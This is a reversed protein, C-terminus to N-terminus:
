RNLLLLKKKYEKYEKKINRYKDYYINGGNHQNILSINKKIWIDESVFNINSKENINFNDYFFCNSIYM